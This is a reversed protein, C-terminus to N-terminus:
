IKVFHLSVIGKIEFLRARSLKENDITIWRIDLCWFLFVSLSTYFDFYLPLYNEKCVQNSLTEYKGELFGSKVTQLELVNIHVPQIM